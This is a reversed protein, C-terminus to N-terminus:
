ESEELEELLRVALDLLFFRRLIVLAARLRLLLFRFYPYIQWLADDVPLSTAQFLQHLASAGGDAGPKGVVTPPTPCHIRLTRTYTRRHAHSDGFM